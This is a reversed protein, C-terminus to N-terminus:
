KETPSTIRRPVTSHRHLNLRPKSLDERSFPISALDLGFAQSRVDVM